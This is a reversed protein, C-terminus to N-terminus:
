RAQCPSPSQLGPSCQSRTHSARNVPRPIQSVISCHKPSAPNAKTVPIKHSRRQQYGRKRERLFFFLSFSLGSLPNRRSTLNMIDGGPFRRCLSSLAAGGGSVGRPVPLVPSALSQPPTCLPSLKPIRPLLRENLQGRPVIGDRQSPKERLPLPASDSKAKTVPIKHSRRRLNVGNKARAFFPKALFAREPPEAAFHSENHRRRSLPSVIFEIRSRGGLGGLSRTRGAAAAVSINHVASFTETNPAFTTQTAGRAARGKSQSGRSPQSAPAQYHISRRPLDLALGSRAAALCSDADASQHPTARWRTQAPM